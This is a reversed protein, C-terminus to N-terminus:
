QQEQLLLGEFGPPSEAVQGSCTARPEGHSDSVKTDDKVEDNGYLIKMLALVDQKERLNVSKKKM